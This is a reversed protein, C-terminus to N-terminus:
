YHEMCAHMETRLAAGADCSLSDPPCQMRVMDMPRNAHKNDSPPLWGYGHALGFDIFYHAMCMATVEGGGMGFLILMICYM